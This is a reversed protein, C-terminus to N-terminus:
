DIPMWEGDRVEVMRFAKFYLGMHNEPSMRVVGNAGVYDVTGELAQRIKNREFSRARRVASVYLQLADFAYSGYVSPRVEWRGEYLKIYGLLISKIPDADDLKEAIVIPPVPLRVGEAAIGSFDLYDLKAVGHTQYLPIDFGLERFGRTVYAPSSGFDINIVAQVNSKTRMRKLPKLINRTQSRYVEDSVVYIGLTKAIDLCHVKTTSAFGNDGSILAIFEIGREKIDHMITNCAMRHTQSSKFVWSRVPDLLIGSNALAIFPVKAESIIPLVAMSAGLTSGGIIVDVKDFYILRRVAIQATRPDTGIDYDILEIKRGFVGGQINLLEVYLKLTALAPAGIFTAQGTISLFTGIKLPESSAEQASLGGSQGSMAAVVFLALVLARYLFRKFKKLNDHMQIILNKAM